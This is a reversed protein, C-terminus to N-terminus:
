KSRERKDMWSPIKRPATLVASVAKPNALAWDRAATFIELQQELKARLREEELKYERQKAALQKPMEVNLRALKEELRTKERQLAALEHADDSIPPQVPHQM